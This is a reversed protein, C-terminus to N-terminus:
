AYVEGSEDGFPAVNSNFAVIGKDTAFFVKGTSKDVQIKVIKNSPLPSNDKNFNFLTERGSPNTGLVGGTDTGFWKNDAGDIAISNVPQDGLLRKPIGDDDIIVPFADFISEDFIGGANPYVVLGKKTGIWIRNNRDVALSRTNFDPLSGKTAETVLARKRDGAENYVLVGNRRTGIWISGTRDIKLDSLGFAFNTIISSLDFSRWAGSPELKKLRNDIFSNTVWLNGLNDFATGSVRVSKYLPNGPISVSELGSNTHNLFSTPANNEVILLGGTASLNGSNNQGYSSIYVKNENDPDITVHVLDRAPYASNYPINTWGEGNFHSYGRESSTPGFADDYAGYVVWLNNNQATISFSDNALPGQPHIETHTVSDSFSRQLIGFETTGLFITQNEAYATNLLYDYQNIANAVVVPMLSVNFIQAQKNSAIAIFEESAKLDNIATPMAAILQISNTSTVEYFNVDRSAFLKNNFLEMTKFDGILDGQPQTWNNFDILNPNNVDASFIGSETAAFIMEQFVEIQNIVIESSGAGIFFTDGFQLKELDYVVIAFPTALFLKSNFETMDNIQKEGTISLRQIDNSLTIKGDNDVVEILGTQYGIVLKELAESFYISTATEGSLGQVSSLKELEQNETDYTFVANDVVAYFKTGVKVFDKVNNYSYFDEWNDSFDTQGLLILNFFLSLLIFLKKM